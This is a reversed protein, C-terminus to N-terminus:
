PPNTTARWAAQAASWPRASSFRAHLSWFLVIFFLFAPRPNDLLSGVAGVVGFGALAGAFGVAMAHGRFVERVTLMLAAGFCLLLASTGLLGTEFYLELYLNKIHWALHEFDSIMIWRDGGRAFDGNAILNESGAGPEAIRMHRVEVTARESGNQMQITVPWTLPWGQGLTGSDFEKKQPVWEGLRDSKFLFEKCNPTWRSSFLILKPCLKVSLNPAAQTSRIELAIEYRRHADLPVKQTLNFDGAGLELRTGDADRGYRYSAKTEPGEGELFYKRPFSGMGAGFATDRWGGDMLRLAEAWHSRRIGADEAIAAFRETMFYGTVVPVGIGAMGAFMCFALAAPLRYAAGIGRGGLLSVGVALAACCVLALPMAIVPDIDSYRSSLFIRAMLLTAPPVLLGVGSATLWWSRRAALHAILVGAGALAIGIALARYGGHHYAVALTAVSAPVAIAACLIVQRWRRERRWRDVALLSVMLMAAAAYGAYLGRSFTAVVAYLGLASAGLCLARLTAREAALTGAAAIATALVLYTDFAEGGTHLEPFMATARYESSFDLLAELVAYRNGTVMAAFVGREWLVIGGALALGLAV